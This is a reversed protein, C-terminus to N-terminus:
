RSARPRQSRAVEASSPFLCRDPAPLSSESYRDAPKPLDHSASWPNRRETHSERILEHTYMTVALLASCAFVLVGGATAPRRRAILWVSGLVVAIAGGKYIALGDWGYQELCAAALPNGESAGPELRLLAFTLMWDAASLLAFLGMGAGIAVKGLM